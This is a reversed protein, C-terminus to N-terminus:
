MSEISDIVTDLGFAGLHRTSHMGLGADILTVQM